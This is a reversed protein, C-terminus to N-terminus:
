SNTDFFFNLPLHLYIEPIFKDLDVLDLERDHVRNHVFEDPDVLGLEEGQVRSLIFENPDM